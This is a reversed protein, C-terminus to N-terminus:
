EIWVVRYCIRPESRHAREARGAIAFGARVLEAEIAPAGIAENYKGIILRGGPAVCHELLWAVLEARRAPPVYELGTRVFDFRTAPRYGLANGVVIRDAWAPYRTRALAALEPSLDLGYPEIAFGQAAGWREISAMLLGNACGVDLFRGPRNVAEAVIGRSYEWDGATGSHGSGGEPTAAALYMPVIRALMAQHWAADDLEGRAHAANDRATDRWGRDKAAELADDPSSV